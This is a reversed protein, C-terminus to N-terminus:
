SSIHRYEIWLELDVLHCLVHPQFALLHRVNQGLLPLLVDPALTGQGLLLEIDQHLRERLLMLHLVNGPVHVPLGTNGGYLRCLRLCGGFLCRCFLCSCFLCGSRLCGGFLCGSFLCSGLLCGSLLCGCLFCGGLLCGGLFCGSLFCGGFLCGSFLCGGLFCSGFLCSCFLRCCLFCGGLPRCRGRASRSGATSRRCALRLPRIGAYSGAAAICARVCSRGALVTARRRVASRGGARTGGRGSGGTLTGKPITRGRGTLAGEPIARGCGTLLGEPVTGGVAAPLSGAGASTGAFAVSAVEILVSRTLMKLHLRDDAPLRGLAAVRLLCGAAGRAHDIGAHCRDIQGLVVILQVGKHGLPHLVCAASALLDALAPIGRGGRASRQALCACAFLRGDLLRRQLDLDRIFDHDAIEGCAQLNRHRLDDLAQHEHADHRGDVLGHVVVGGGQHRLLQAGDGGLLDHHGNLFLQEIRRLVGGVLELRARRDHADHPVNVVTLGGQQVGDAIRVDGGALRATDGLM